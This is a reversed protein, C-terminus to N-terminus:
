NIADTLPDPDLAIYEAEADHVALDEVIVEALPVEEISNPEDEALGALEAAQEEEFSEVNEPLKFQAVVQKLTEAMALMSQASASVEEVQASMEEASASVEEVAASNEESVSAINEIAQSVAISSVTMEESATTNENVVVSVADAAEVLKESLDNMQAAAQAIQQVQDSVGHVAELVETLAQGSENARVVGHDVEVAGAQMASVAENVTKQIGKILAAIEKTSKSSREALKRVEDAVVAFGKGHEGARAAEIAANLALLNTQSAIDEITELIAGIEESRKGMERVKQASVDVKEKIVAMGKVSETVKQAGAQAVKAAQNSGSTGAQANAAVQAIATSIQTTVQTSHGVAISQEEGGKAIAEISRAMQDMSGATLNIAESQEGTGRAVQQITAAIQNTADGAQAAALALQKSATELSEANEAIRSVSRRLGSIMGTFAIGLEDAECKPEIQVTLDGDAIQAAAEAMEVLYKRTQVLSRTVDGVEDRLGLLMDADNQNFDRSLDGMSLRATMSTILKLPRVVSRTLLLSVVIGLLSIVAGIILLLSRQQEIAQQALKVSLESSMMQVSILKEISADMQKLADNMLKTNGGKQDFYAKSEKSYAAFGDTFSKIANQEDTQISSLGAELLDATLKENGSSIWSSQYRFMVDSVRQESYNITSVLNNRDADNLGGRILISFSASIDKVNGQAEELNYIPIFMYNYLTDYQGKLTNTGGLAVVMTLAAALPILVALIVFKWVFKIKGFM